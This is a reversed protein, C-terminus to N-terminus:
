YTMIEIQPYEELVDERIYLKPKIEQQYLKFINGFEFEAVWYYKVGELEEESFIEDIPLYGVLVEPLGQDHWLDYVAQYDETEKWRMYLTDPDDANFNMYINRDFYPLTTSANGMMDTYFANPIPHDNPIVDELYITSLSMEQDPEPLYWRWSMMIKRNELGNDKIFEAIEKPGYPNAIDMISSVGSYVIPMFSIIGGIIALLRRISASEIKMGIKKFLIPIMPNQGNECINWFIFLLFMMSIGLHHVSTQVLTFALCFLLYPVLFHLRKNTKLFAILVFWLLVGLTYEAIMGGTTYIGEDYNLYSGFLSDLPVILIYRLRAIKQPLTVSGGGYFCDEAPIISVLVFLAIVLIFLLAHARSDRLVRSWTGSRRYETFIEVCWIICLGGAIVLMYAGTLSFLTLSLIYRWPHTNRGSYTMCVLMMGVLMICYPRSIVGYQYFFFYTFPLLCRVIKPFPSRWLLLAAAITCFSINIASLTFEYPAGLKAFPLLVLHWLQPHGEYHPIEFLIERLTASRAIMWAQAEDFWPEHFCSIVATGLVYLFLVIWEARGARRSLCIKKLKEM